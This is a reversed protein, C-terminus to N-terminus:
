RAANSLFDELGRIPAEDEYLVARRTKLLERVSARYREDQILRLAIGVYEQESRAVLEELGMRKLIGSALRGRMFRGDRTVIPVGAEVAQMATNFGSFGITDLFVDARELLGDFAPGSQWPIFVGLNSFDLGRRAFATALRERLKEALSTTEPMFFVFQSRRARLAIEALVWDFEPAYKFPMGPCLLLPRGPDIGMAALDPAVPERELPEYFCGLHPLAILRESYHKQADPPELDEASLYYDMTPLGTTEPHGWTAAQVPALRLSALQLTMPDMGIEPYILVDLKADIIAQVWTRLDRDGQDFRRSLSEALLTESDQRRGLHFAHIAFREQDLMRFWGKVIANWVSHNWFYQSAFGVRIETRSRSSTPARFGQREFWANMLRTCLRGYRELLERNDEEHYALSFPQQSGVGRVGEAIRGGDFWRDLEELQASFAARCQAPVTAVDYVKPVQSIALGWRAEVYEPDLALANRCCDLSERLAGQHRLVHALGYHVEPQNPQLAIARKYHVAAEDLRNQDRLTNALNFHAEPFDPAIALAKRYSTTAQAPRGLALLVNGLNVYAASFDPDAALAKLYSAAAEDLRGADKHANGADLLAGASEAKGQAALASRLNVLADAYGLDLMLASVFSGIAREVKGQALLVNGLNNHAPANSDNLRLAGSILEDAKEHEGRQYAVVGLFHQADINEPDLRLIERYASEAQPLRGERHHQLALNLAEAPATAGAARSREGEAPSKSTSRGSRFLRGLV